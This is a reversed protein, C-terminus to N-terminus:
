IMFNIKLNLMCVYIEYIYTFNLDLSFNLDYCSIIYRMYLDYIINFIIKQNLYTIMYRMYSDYILDFLIKLKYMCRCIMYNHVLFWELVFNLDICAKVYWRYTKCNFRFYIESEFYEDTCRMYWFFFWIKFNKKFVHIDIKHM